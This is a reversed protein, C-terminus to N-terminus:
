FINIKRAFVSLYIKALKLIERWDHDDPTCLQGEQNHQRHQPARQVGPQGSEGGHAELEVPLRPIPVAVPLLLVVGVEHGEDPVHHHDVELAAADVTVLVKLLALLPTTHGLVLQLHYNAALTSVRALVRFNFQSLVSNQCVSGTM